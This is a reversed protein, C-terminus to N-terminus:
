GSGLSPRPVQWKPHSRLGSHGWAPCLRGLVARCVKTWFGFGFRTLGRLCRIGVPPSPQPCRHNERPPLAAPLVHPLWPAALAWWMPVGVRADLMPLASVPPGMASPVCSVPSGPPCSGDVGSPPGELPCRVRTYRHSSSCSCSSYVPCLPSKLGM